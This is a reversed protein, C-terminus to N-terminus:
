FTTFRSSIHLMSTLKTENLVATYAHLMYVCVWPNHQIFGFRSASHRSLIQVMYVFMKQSLFIWPVLHLQLNFRSQSVISRVHNHDTNTSICTIIFMWVLLTIASESQSGGDTWLCTRTKFHLVIGREPSCLASFLACLKWVGWRCWDGRWGDGWKFMKM